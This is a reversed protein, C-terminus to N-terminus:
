DLQASTEWATAEAHKRATHYVGGVIWLAFAIVACALQGAALWVVSHSLAPAMAGAVFAGLM